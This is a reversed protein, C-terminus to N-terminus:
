ETQLTLLTIEPPMWIRFPIALVGLGRNVYLYQDGKSYLGNWRPYFRGSPSWRFKKTLIGMQMGHTHGSFTLQIDTKGEIDEDWQNPDHALLIKFGASDTNEMAKKLDGHLIDPFRGSTTVGIIGVKIGNINITYNGGSLLRYGSSEILESMKIINLERTKRSTDPLYTGMDHNGFVAFNGYRSWAKALITDCGGFERWGYSAFDGTNIILDPKYSNVRDTLEQLIKHHRCFSALHMDSLQVIKLGNLQPPLNKIKISIEDTKFNYRGIFSGSAILYFVIVSIIVGTQTLWRIHGEKRFRLLKGFYHLLILLGRPFSIGCLLGTLTMRDNVNEPMDFFGKFMRIKIILYWLWISFVFNCILFVYFKPKSSNYLHEKLVLVILIEISLLIAIALM